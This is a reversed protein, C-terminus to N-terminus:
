EGATCEVLIETTKDGASEEDPVTVKLEIEAADASDEYGLNTIALVQTMNLDTFNTSASAYAGTENEDIAFQVNSSNRLTSNFLETANININALVNGTNEVIMPGPSGSTTNKTQFLTFSGFEVTPVPLSCSIEQTLTFNYTSSWEGLGGTDNGRVRWFYTKGATLTSSTFSTNIDGEAVGTQNVDPSVFSSNDEIQIQYTVNTGNLDGSNNWTFTPTRDTISLNNAPDILTPAQPAIITLELTETQNSNNSTDEVLVSWNHAGESLYKIFIYEGSVGSTNSENAVGDIYITVNNIGTEDTATVNFKVESRISSANPPYNLTADPVADVAVSWQRGEKWKGIKLEGLKDQAPSSDPADFEYSLNIYDGKKLNIGKWTLIKTDGSTTVTMGSQPTIIYDSPVYEKIKGKYIKNAKIVFTMNYPLAPYIRTHGVREVDYKVKNKVQFADYITKEGNNTIATLNMTYIGKGEVTYNTYYDPLTTVGKIECEPSIEIIGNDTSLINKTGSPTTIELTVNADCVMEGYDDLVAISMESNENPTYISKHTNIALVGWTFNQELSHSLGDKLYTLVAKYKGAKIRRAKNISIDFRDEVIEGIDASINTLSGEMDYIDVQLSNQQKKWTGKQKVKGEIELLNASNLIVEGESGVFNAEFAVDQTGRFHKGKPLITDINIIEEDEFEPDEPDYEEGTDVIQNIDELSNNDAISQGTVGSGLDNYFIAFTGLSFIVIILMIIASWKKKSQASNEQRTKKISRITSAFDKEFERRPISAREFNVPAEKPKKPLTYTEKLVRLARAREFRSEKAKLAGGFKNETM